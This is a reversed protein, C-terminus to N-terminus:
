LKEPICTSYFNHSGKHSQELSATSEPSALEPATVAVLHWASLVTEWVVPVEEQPVSAVVWLVMLNVAQLAIGTEQLEGQTADICKDETHHQYQCRILAIDANHVAKPSFDVESSAAPLQQWQELLLSAQALM